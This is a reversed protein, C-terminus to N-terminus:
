YRRFRLGLGIVIIGTVVLMLAGTFGLPSSKTEATGTISLESTGTNNVVIRHEGAKQAILVYNFTANGQESALSIGDPDSVNFEYSSGSLTVNADSGVNMNPTIVDIQGPLVTYDVSVQVPVNTYISSAAGIAIFIIGAVM